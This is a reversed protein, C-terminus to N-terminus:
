VGGKRSVSGLINQIAKYMGAIILIGLVLLVLHPCIIWGFMICGVILMFIGIGKGLPDDKGGIKLILWGMVVFLLPVLWKM